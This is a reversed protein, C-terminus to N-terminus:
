QRIQLIYQLIAIQMYVTKFPIVQQENRGASRWYPNSLVSQFFVQRTQLIYLDKNLLLLSM